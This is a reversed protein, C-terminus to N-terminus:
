GAWPFRSIFVIFGPIGKLILTEVVTLKIFFIFFNYSKTVFEHYRYCDLVISQSCTIHVAYSSLECSM